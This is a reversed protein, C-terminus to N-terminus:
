MVFFYIERTFVFWVLKMTLFLFCFSNMLRNLTKEQHPSFQHAESHQEVMVILLKSERETRRLVTGQRGFGELVGEVM